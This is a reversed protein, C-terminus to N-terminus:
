LVGGSQAILQSAWGPCLSIFLIIIIITDIDVAIEKASMMLGSTLAAPPEGGWHAWSVTISTKQFAVM